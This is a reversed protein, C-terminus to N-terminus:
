SFDLESLIKQAVAQSTMQELFYLYGNLGLKERLESSATLKLLTEAILTPNIVPCNYGAKMEQEIIIGADSAPEIAVVMPLAARLYDVSKSAFTPVTVHGSNFVLGIDSAQLLNCYDERSLSGIYIVNKLQRNKIENIFWDKFVGDGAVVFVLDVDKSDLIMAVNLLLELGRGPIMQGGMLAWIKAQSLLPWQKKLINKQNETVLTLPRPGWLNIVTRKQNNENRFYKNMYNVNAPSMLGVLHAQNVAREEQKKAVTNIISLKPLLNLEQHYKPFFDWLIMAIKKSHKELKHVIGATTVAPSFYILLDFKTTPIKIQIAAWWSSFLWKFMLGIKKGFIRQWNPQKIYTVTIGKIDVYSVSPSTGAWDLCYVWVDYGLERYAYALDNTLWANKEELSYKSCVIAVRM